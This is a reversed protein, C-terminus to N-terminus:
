GSPPVPDLVTSNPGRSRRRMRALDAEAALFPLSAWTRSTRAHEFWRAADEQRESNLALFYGVAYSYLARDGRDLAAARDQISDSSLLGKYALLLQMDVRRSDEAWVPDAGALVETAEKINGMRRLTFFLWLAARSVEDPTVSRAVAEFLSKRAASYDGRCYLAFGLLLATQYQLMSITNPEGPFEVLEPFEALQGVTNSARRFDKIALKLERLWLLMEGRLRYLRSDLPNGQLASDLVAVADRFRGMAANARALGLQAGLGNPNNRHVARALNLRSVRAPGSSVELPLSWLTDGLLSVAEAHTPTPLTYRIPGTSCGTLLALGLSRLIASSRAPM